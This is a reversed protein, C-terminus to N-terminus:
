IRKIEIVKLNVTLAEDGRGTEAFLAGLVKWAFPHEPFEETISLARKEAVGHLGKQYDSLLIDLESQKPTPSLLQKDIRQM